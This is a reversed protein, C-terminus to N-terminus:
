KMWVAFVARFVAKDNETRFLQYSRHLHDKIAKTARGPDSFGSSMEKDVLSRFASRMAMGARIYIIQSVQTSLFIRQVLGPLIKQLSAGERPESHIHKKLLWM